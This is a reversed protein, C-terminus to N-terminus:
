LKGTRLSTEIEELSKGKTEPLRFYLFTLGVLCVAAYTWFVGATGLAVYSNSCHVDGPWSDSQSLDGCDSGV